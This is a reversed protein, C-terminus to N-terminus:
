LPEMVSFFTTSGRQIILGTFDWPSDGHLTLVDVGIGTNLCKIM